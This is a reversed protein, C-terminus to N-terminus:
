QAEEYEKKAAEKEELYKVRAKDDYRKYDNVIATDEPNEYASVIKEIYVPDNRYTGLMSYIGYSSGVLFAIGILMALVSRIFLPQILYLLAERDEDGLRRYYLTIYGLLGIVSCIATILLIKDAQLLIIRTMVAIVMISVSWLGFLYMLRMIRGVRNKDLFVLIGSALYYFSLTGFFLMSIREGYGPMHPKLFLFLVTLGVLIIEFYRSFFKKLKESTSM